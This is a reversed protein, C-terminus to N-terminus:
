VTKWSSARTQKIKKERWGMRIDQSKSYAIALYRFGDAGHSAWDHLPRLQYVEHKTDYEKRYNELAEVGNKCREKDFWCRPLLSRVAEIGDDVPLKRVVRFEIGMERAVDKRSRGTGIERVEIDPPAWHDGYVYGFEQTKQQLLKAYHHLGEGQKEYYDILHIEQGARQAFWIVMSDGIGLDWVTDVLVTTDYPVRTIRGDKSVQGMLRAYYAGEIGFEFSCYYEQQIMDESILGMKREEDIAEKTIVPTGDHRKTENITLLGCYWKPNTLANQYVRWGHNKGRPTYLFVAWGDNEVLIPSILEWARPDQLAYESFVCGVPNPGVVKDFRDTGVIQFLSGNILKIKMQDNLKNAIHDSPFHDLFAKGEHDIGDWIVRRGHSFEPFFYYYVGIRKFMEKICLNLATIDKGARRHWVAVGRRYGDAITNFLPVQYDRPIYKHPIKM